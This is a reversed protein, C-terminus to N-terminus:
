AALIINEANLGLEKYLGHSRCFDIIRHIIPKQSNHEICLCKCGLGRLDIQQLINMDEGEADISIYDFMSFRCQLMFDKFTITQVSEEKFHVNASAWRKTEEFNLTSLLARDGKKLHEGSDWLISQGTERSMAYEYVEVHPNDIHLTWLDAAVSPSPEVLAAAWGKDIFLKANSLHVGNNEGISLLTGKYKGFYQAIILDEGNQSYSQSLSQSM